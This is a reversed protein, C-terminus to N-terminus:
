KSLAFHWMEDPDAINTLTIVIKLSTLVDYNPFISRHGRSIYLPCDKSHKDDIQIPFDM